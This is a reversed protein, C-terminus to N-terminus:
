APAPARVRAVLKDRRHLINCLIAFVIGSFITIGISPLRLAGLDRVMIVSIVPQGEDVEPPPPPEGPEPEVPVVAQVQVVAYHPPHRLTLASDIKYKLRGILSDDTRRDKGGISFADVTVYETSATFKGEGDPGLAADASAQAEGRQPDSPSLLEWGNLDLEDNISPDITLLDSLTPERPQEAFAEALEPDADLFQDPEPLEDPQPLRTAVETGAAQLNGTNLEVVEWSPAPGQLGIGYISWAVGMIAMWGMLGALAVLFGVRHGTNTALLLYVSGCLVVVGVLVVLIGRIGPDFEIGLVATSLAAVVTM